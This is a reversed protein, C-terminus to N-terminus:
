INDIIKTIEKIFASSDLFYNPYAKKIKKIDDLSILVVELLSDARNAEAEKKSYHETATKLSKFPSVNLLRTKLNLVLLFYKADRFEDKVKINSTIHKTAVSVGALKDLIKLKTNLSKIKNHIEVESLNALDSTIQKNEKISFAASCLKFFARHSQDGKGAKIKSKHLLDFTEVATSWAHQLNTRIQLEVKFGKLEPHKKGTYEYIQHVSRYGDDKPTLIYDDEDVLVFSLNKKVFYSKICENRFSNVQTINELIIRIGAIDQMRSASMGKFRILKNIISPMRKLRRSLTSKKYLTNRTLKSRLSGRLIKMPIEHLTRWMSIIDIDKDADYDILRDDTLDNELFYCLREGAKKVSSKSPLNDMLWEEYM